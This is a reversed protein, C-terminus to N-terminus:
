KLVGQQQLLAVRDNIVKAIHDPQQEAAYFKSTFPGLGGITYTYIMVAVPRSFQDFEFTDKVSGITVKPDITM